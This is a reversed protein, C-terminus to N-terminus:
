YIHKNQFLTILDRKYKCGTKQKIRNIYEEVTRPSLNLLKATEKITKGSVLYKLCDNERPSICIDGFDSIDDDIFTIPTLDIKNKPSDFPENKLLPINVKFDLNAQLIKKAESNFYKIYRYLSQVNAIYTNTINKNDQTTAFFYWDGGHNNKEFICLTHNIDYARKCEDLMAKLFDPVTHDSIYTIGTEYYDPHLLSPDIKFFEKSASHDLWDPLNGLLEWYGDNTVSQRCFYTIGFQIFLHETLKRIKNPHRKSQLSIKELESYM